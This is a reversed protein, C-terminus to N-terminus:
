SLRWYSNSLVDNSVDIDPLLWLYTPDIELYPIQGLECVVSASLRARGVVAGSLRARGGLFATLAGQLIIASLLGQGDLVASLTGPLEARCFLDAGDALGADLYGGTVEALLDACGLSHCFRNM